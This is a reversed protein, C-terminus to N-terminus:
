RNIRAGVGVQARLPTVLCPGLDQVITAPPKVQALASRLGAADDADLTM